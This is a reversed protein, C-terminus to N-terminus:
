KQWWGKLARMPHRVTRALAGGANKAWRAGKVPATAITYPSKALTGVAGATNRAGFYANPVSHIINNSNIMVGTTM